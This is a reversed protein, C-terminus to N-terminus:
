LDGHSLHHSLMRSAWTYFPSGEFLYSYDSLKYHANILGDRLPRPTSEPLERICERLHEQLGRFVADVESVTPRKTVSMDVTADRYLRLWKTVIAIAEWEEFSIE